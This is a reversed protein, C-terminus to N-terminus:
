LVNSCFNNLGLKDDTARKMTVPCRWTSLSETIKSIFDHVNM